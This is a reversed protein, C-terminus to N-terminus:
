QRAMKRLVFGVAVLMFGLIPIVINTSEGTKPLGDTDEPDKPDEPDEKHNEDELNTERVFGFDLTPDREGDEVLYRSTAYWTSSDITNDDGVEHLTPVIGKLAEASAERDIRVIYINDAPLNDFTYWGNKDTTTPGVPKGYVDIVPNGDEDEITLVVGEIPTDTEDQLGDNNEDIWVYDGVSVVKRVFGFDLTPDREQDERLYRSTAEWTSSDISNDDGVEDLTPMLGKLADKSADRDIRVTYTKDAPLNDFTYWGNEDTKTPGVPNGYVDTVPNGDEDELTLVIDKLPTDTEDQLGDKNEDIWVYDGVSVKIPRNTIRFGDGANGEIPETIFGEVAEEEVTYEILKGDKYEDLDTFNAQWNNEANLEVLKDTKEGDALLNVTISEPRANVNNEDNWAKVVNVSTKGPTYSNTIEMGDIETSYGEVKDEQITYTIEEGNEYKPLDTFEFNWDTEATVEQDDVEDGNALLRVTISEPRKGDQNNEDEWTKTGELDILEPTHTNTIVFNGDNDKDVVSTYSEPVNLEHVSYEILDGDDDYAPLEKFTNSWDNAEKLEIPQGINEGGATLQVQISDPRIGDQDDEDEWAKTVSIEIPTATNTVTLGNEDKTYGAPTYDNGDEDVEKVSFIYDDGGTSVSVVDEWTVQTTGPALEEREAGPVKEPTGEEGIQRYLEFWITVQPNNGEWVKTATIDEKIRENEVTIVASELRTLNDTAWSSNTLDIVGAGNEGYGLYFYIPEISQYGAPTVETLIYRGARLRTLNIEGKDDTKYDKTSTDRVNTLVFEVNPLPLNNNDKDIKVVKMDLTQSSGSGGFYWKASIISNEVQEIVTDSNYGIVQIRNSVERQGVIEDRLSTRYTLEYTHNIENANENDSQKFTLVFQPVGNVESPVVTYENAPVIVNEQGEPTVRTVTLDIVDEDNESKVTFYVQNADLIDRISANKIPQADPNVTATWVILDTELDQEGDKIPNNNNNGAYYRATADASVTEKIPEENKSYNILDVKNYYEDNNKGYNSPYKVIETKYTLTHSNAGDPLSVTFTATEEDWSLIESDETDIETENLKMSGKVYKQDDEITDVLIADKLTKLNTNATISWSIVAPKVTTNVGTSQKSVNLKVPTVTEYYEDSGGLFKVRVENKTNINDYYANYKTSYTLVYEVPETQKTFAIEFYGKDDEDTSGFPSVITYDTGAELKTNAGDVKHIEIEGILETDKPTYTDKIVLNKIIRKNTNFKIEWNIQKSSGDEAREVEATKKVGPRNIPVNAEAKDEESNGQWVLTATNNARTNLAPITTRYRVYYTTAETSKGEKFVIDYGKTNEVEDAAVSTYDYLESSVVIEEGEVITYFKFSGPVIELEAPSFRDSLTPSELVLNNTNFKVIWEIEQRDEDSKDKGVVYKASKEIGAVPHDVTDTPGVGDGDWDLDVKNTVDKAKLGAATYNTRYTLKYEKRESQPLNFTFGNGSPTVTYGSEVKKGDATLVFSEEDLTLLSADFTDSFSFGDYAVRNSNFTVTWEIYAEGNEYKVVGSKDAGGVPTTVTVTDEGPPTDPNHDYIKNTVDQDYLGGPVFSSYEIYYAKGNSDDISFTMNGESDLTATPQPHIKVAGGATPDLNGPQPKTVEWVIVSDLDVEGHSLEDIFTVNGLNDKEYNYYVKWNIVSPDGSVTGEKVIPESTAPWELEIEDYYETTTEDYTIKALNDINTNESGPEQQEIITTYEIEYTDSISGFNITFGDDSSQVTYQSTVDAREGNVEGTMKNRPVRYIKVSSSDLTHGRNLTDTVKVTDHIGLQDNVRIKWDARNANVNTNDTVVEGYEDVIYSKLADKYDAGGFESPKGVLIARYGENETYPISIEQERECEFIETNFSQMLNLNLERKDAIEWGEPFSITVNGSDDITYSIGYGVQLDIPGPTAVFPAAIEPLQFTYTEDPEIVDLENDFSLKYTLQTASITEPDIYVTQGDTITKWEDNENIKFIFENIPNSTIAMPGVDLSTAAIEVEDSSDGDAEVEDDMDEIEKKDALHEDADEDGLEDQDKVAEEDGGEEQIEDVIIETEKFDDEAFTINLISPAVIQVVMALVIFFTISFKGKGNYKNM